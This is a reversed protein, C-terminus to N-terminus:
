WAAPPSSCRRGGRTRRPRSSSRARARAARRRPDLVVRAVGTVTGPSAPTGRLSRGDDDAPVTAAAEPETGDSLLVRPVRRRRLEQDYAERRDAVVLRRLDAGDLARHAETLDLYFVDEAADLRGSAPWSRM